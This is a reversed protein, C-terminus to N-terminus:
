GPGGGGSHTGGSMLLATPIMVLSMVATIMFVDSYALVATQTRLMQMAQGQAMEAAQAASRGLNVLGHQIQQLLVQYNQSTPTLHEVLYSQRIQEHNTILATSVSIGVGGFM